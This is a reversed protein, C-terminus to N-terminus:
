FTWLAVDVVLVGAGIAAFLNRKSEKDRIDNELRVAEQSSSPNYAKVDDDIESDISYAYGLLGAGVIGLGVRLFTNEYWPGSPSSSSITRPTSSKFNERSTIVNPDNALFSDLVFRGAIELKQGYLATHLDAYAIHYDRGNVNEKVNYYTVSNIISSTSQKLNKAMPIDTKIVGQFTAAHGTESIRLTFPYKEADADYTGLKFNSSSINLKSTSFRYNSKLIKIDAYTNEVRQSYKEFQSDLDKTLEGNTHEWAEQRAEFSETTEFEGKPKLPKVGNLKQKRQSLYDLEVKGFVSQILELRQNYIREEKAPAEKLSDLSITRAAKFPSLFSLVFEKETTKTAVLKIQSSKSEYGILQVSLNFQGPELGKVVLPTKGLNKSGLMVTAGSPESTVELESVLSESKSLMEEKLSLLRTQRYKQTKAANAWVKDREDFWKSQRVEYDGQKEFEGKKEFPRMGLEANKKISKIEAQIKTIESDVWNMKLQYDALNKIPEKNLKEITFGNSSSIPKSTSSSNSSFSPMSPLSQAWISGSLFFLTLIKNM